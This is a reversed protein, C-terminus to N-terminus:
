VRTKSYRSWPCQSDVCVCACVCYENGYGVLVEFEFSPCCFRRLMKLGSYIIQM